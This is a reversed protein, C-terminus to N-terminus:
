RNLKQQQQETVLNYWVEAVEHVAALWARRDEVVEWLKNLDMDMSDTISDLLRMRQQRSRWQHRWDKRANLDKGIFRSKANPAWLISVEAEAHTRGTFLWPQNEKLISKNTSGSTWPVRLLRTWYWLEFDDFRQCEGDKCDLEWM